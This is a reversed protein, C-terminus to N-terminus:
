ALSRHLVVELVFRSGVYALLLTAFGTLVFSLATKGRWGRWQRGTLLMGFLLWSLLTFVTKHEFRFPKGFVQESFFIGSLMTLTLLIFGITIMRFLLREMTLLPPLRDIAGLLWGRHVAAATLAHLRSEQMAMLVAQFAAITLAGYALTSLVIHWSFLPTKDALPILSGPFALPLAAVVAASPLVLRRLGDVARQRNELWYAAVSLWLAASLMLAFGMRLFNPEIAMLALAFGHLGWAIATGVVVARRRQEPLLACILYLAVAAPIVFVQMAETYVLADRSSDPRQPLILCWGANRIARKQQRSTTEM